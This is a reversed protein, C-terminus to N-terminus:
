QEMNSWCLSAVEEVLGVLAEEVMGVWAEGVLMRQEWDRLHLVASHISGWAKVDKNPQMPTRSYDEADQLSQPLHPDESTHKRIASNEECRKRM